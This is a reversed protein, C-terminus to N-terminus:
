HSSNLRTSKRDLGSVKRNKLITVAQDIVHDMYARAVEFQKNSTLAGGHDPYLGLVPATIKDLFPSPDVKGALRSM